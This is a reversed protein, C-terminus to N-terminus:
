YEDAPPGVHFLLLLLILINHSFAAEAFVAVVCPIICSPSLGRM